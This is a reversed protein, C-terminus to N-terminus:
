RPPPGFLRDGADGLGPTIYGRDTLTDDLAGVVLRVDHRKQVALVGPTAAILCIVRVDLPCRSVLMDLVALLSGGTALMPDCIVVSMGELSEPLGDLYVEPQLTMEDRRLGVLCVRHRPLLSQVAPSMGLGARLVPIIVFERDLRSAPAGTMVPTDVTTPVVPVDRLSEYALFRSVEATVRLFESSPTSEDRLQRVLDAVLPHDVVQLTFVHGGSIAGVSPFNVIALTERLGGSHVGGGFDLDIM